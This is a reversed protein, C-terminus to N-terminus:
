VVAQIDANEVLREFKILVACIGAGTGASSSGSYQLSDGAELLFPVAATVTMGNDNTTDAAPSPSPAIRIASAGLNSVAEVVPLNLGYTEGSVGIEFNTAGALGTADTQFIVKTVMLDGTAASSLAQQSTTIDSSLVTFKRWFSTGASRRVAKKVRNSLTGM